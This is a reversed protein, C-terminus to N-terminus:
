AGRRGVQEHLALMRRIAEVIERDSTAETFVLPRWGAASLATLRASDRVVASPASHWVLGYYEVFVRQEPWAFDLFYTRGGAEVRYQQVPDPLGARAIVALIELEANSGGPDFRDGRESLLQKVVSLRRNPGSDLRSVCARLRDLSAIGRRLGDDLVRGLQLWSLQTTSDCLTREFTTCPVDARRTVDDPGLAVSRHMRVGDLRVVYEAPVTLEFGDSADYRFDWLRAASSHSAVTGHPAAVVAALLAQEWGTPAGAAAYVGHRVRVLVGSRVLGGVQRRTAGSELLQRYAILGHQRRAVTAWELEVRM